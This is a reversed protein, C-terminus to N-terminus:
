LGLAARDINTAQQDIYSHWADHIKLVNVGQAGDYPDLILAAGCRKCSILGVIAGAAVVERYETYHSNSM